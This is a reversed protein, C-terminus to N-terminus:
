TAPPTPSSCRARQPTPLTSSRPGAAKKAAKAPDEAGPTMTPDVGAAAGPMATMMFVEYYHYRGDPDEMM